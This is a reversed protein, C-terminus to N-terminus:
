EVVNECFRYLIAAMEARTAKGTPDLNNEGKGNILGAGVAWQMADKAWSSIEEADVFTSLDASATVDYGKYVAYRYLITAFQERTIDGTPDFRGDYGEVIKNEAAWIVADTYWEGEPIDSFTCEGVEPEGELRYLVTVLMARATNSDPEFTTDSTGNMLGNAVCFHIGDHTWDMKVDTFKSAPCTGDKDCDKVPDKIPKFSGSITVRGYPQKFTFTGDGNDTLEVPNGNRDTVTVDDVEYGEDPTATITVKSGQIPYKPSITVTGGEPQNVIPPYTPIPIAKWHAYITTNQTFATDATVKTGGEAATFWGDFTYGVRTPTPLINLVGRDAVMLTDEPNVAGGNADFWVTYSYAGIDARISDSDSVDANTVTGSNTCDVVAANKGIGLVGGVYTRGATVTGSNNCNEIRVVNGEEDFYASDVAMGAIGGVFSGYIDIAYPVGDVFRVTPEAEPWEFYCTVAGDNTCNLILSDRNYSYVPLSDCDGELHTTDRPNYISGVIGGINYPYVTVATPDTPDNPDASSYPKGTVKGSNTCNLIQTGYYAYGAIGGVGTTGTIADVNECSEISANQAYGVIGGTGAEISSVPGTNNCNKVIARYDANDGVLRGVIGGTCEYNAETTCTIKGTNTCDAILVADEESCKDASLTAVGAIGGLKHRAPEDGSILLYVCANNTCNQIHSDQSCGVIGGVSESGRIGWGYQATPAASTVKCNQIKSNVAVGAIGGVNTDGSILVNDLTVNRIEAGQIYGFLGQNNSTDSIGLNNISYYGGDFTGQFPSEETGIPIWNPSDQVTHNLDINNMLTITKGAFSDRPVSATGNVIQALGALQEATSISFSNDSTNNYWAIDVTSGDWVNGGEALAVTPLLGMLLCATLLISLLRKKM